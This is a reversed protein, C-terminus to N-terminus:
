NGSEKLELTGFYTVLKRLLNFYLTVYLILSVIWIVTLNFLYTDIKLNGVVKYPAYFHARGNISVPKMFVPEFKQIIRTPMELSKAPVENNLLIDALRNNYYSDKLKVYGELGIANVISDSVADKLAKEEKTFGRFRRVLLDLYFVTEKATASDLKEQNLATKINGPVAYGTLGSLQEIYYNLKKFNNELENSDTKAKQCEQLDKKLDDILFNAYYYNQSAKMEYDFFNREYKNSKFQEVALAEFSWRATM